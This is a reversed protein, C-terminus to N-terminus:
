KMQELAFTRCLHSFKSLMKERENANSFASGIVVIDNGAKTAMYVQAPAKVELTRLEWSEHRLATGKCVEFDSLAVRGFHKKEYQQEWNRYSILVHPSTSPFESIRVSTVSFSIDDISTKEASAYSDEGQFVKMRHGPIDFSFLTRGLHGHFLFGDKSKELGVWAGPNQGATATTASLGLVCIAILAKM